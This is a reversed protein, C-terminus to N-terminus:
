GSAVAYLFGFGVAATLVLAFLGRKAAQSSKRVVAGYAYGPLGHFLLQSLFAGEEGGSDDILEDLARKSYGQWFARTVLWKPDTRFDFVKHEVVADPNYWVREGFADHMRASLETEEGQIQRDGHRGLESEFGGIEEFVERKFSINSGFTNRVECEEEPFGRHTVGVLWYFEPPLFTPEGAVWQPAMRGGAAMADRREYTEVLKEVWDPRAVADDDLFAIVDGTSEEIGANRSRSLGLNTENRHIRVGEVDGYDDRVRRHLTESGDVVVVAEVDDYSQELVSEVADRLHGYLDPDYACIVVSVRM